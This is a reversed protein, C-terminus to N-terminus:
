GGGGGAPCRGEGRAHEQEERQQREREGGEGEHELPAAAHPVRGARGPGGFRLAERAHLVAREAGGGGHASAGVEGDRGLGGRRCVAGLDEAPAGGGVSDREVASPAEIGLRRDGGLHGEGIQNM